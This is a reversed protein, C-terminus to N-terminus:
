PQLTTQQMPVTYCHTTFTNASVETLHSVANTYAPVPPFMMIVVLENYVVSVVM